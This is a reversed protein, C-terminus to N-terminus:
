WGLGVEALQGRLKGLDLMWFWSAEDDWGFLSRGDAAFATHRQSPTEFPPTMRFRVGGGDVDWLTFSGDAGAYVYLTIPDAPKEDTYQLEPGFPIISGARVFLPLSDYPAPANITQGGSLAAGTWFDYWTTRSPLYVPRHRAKYETVPAVLFAPGFMYEDVVTRAAVDDPFDMVLPRMM